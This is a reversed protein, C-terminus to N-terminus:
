YQIYTMILFLSGVRNWGFITSDGPPEMDFIANAARESWPLHAGILACALGDLILYKARTKFESPIENLTISDVWNCLKGTPGEPDTPQSSTTPTTM